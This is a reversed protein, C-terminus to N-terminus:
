DRSGCICGSGYMYLKLLNPNYVKLVLITKLVKDRAM